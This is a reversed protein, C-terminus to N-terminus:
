VVEFARKTTGDTDVYTYGLLFNADADELTYTKGARFTKFQGSPLIFQKTTAMARRVTKAKGCPKCGRVTEEVIGNFRINL